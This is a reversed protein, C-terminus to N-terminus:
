AWRRAQLSVSRACILVSMVSMSLVPCIGSPQVRPMSTGIGLAPKGGVYLFIRGIVSISHMVRNAM